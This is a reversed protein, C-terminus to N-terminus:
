ILAKGAIRLGRRGGNRIDPVLPMFWGLRYEGIEVAASIQRM